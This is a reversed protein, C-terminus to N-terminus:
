IIKNLVAVVKGIINVKKLDDTEKIPFLVDENDSKKLMRVAYHEGQSSRAIVLSGDEASKSKQCLLVADDPLEKDAMEKMRTIAMQVRLLLEDNRFPKTIYDYAGSKMAEVASDVSAYATIIIITGSPQIEKIKQQLELGSMDPMKLDLFFVDWEKQALKVLAEKGGAAVDVDYGENEFWARLSDRVSFEDDVVLIRVRSAGADEM